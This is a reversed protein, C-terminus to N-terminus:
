FSLNKGLYFDLVKLRFIFDYKSQILESEARSKNNRINIFEIFSILGVDYKRQAYNFAEDASSKAKLSANYRNMAATADAHAQVVSKYVQKRSLEDQLLANELNLRSRQINSQVSWGNFLPISLSLGINKSQNNRVQEDFPIEGLLEAYGGENYFTGISSFLNLSPFLGSKAASLGKKASSIGYESARIEPLTKLSAAYIEEPKMMVTSQSPIDVQQIAVGFDSANDLELLQSIAINASNLSNEATVLTLEESALAAEADLLNGQAMMGTEVMKATRNRTETAANVRDQALKFSEMAFLVQLYAAAVNLSIDNSIKALNEQSQLYEYKSQALSHQLRLGGFLTVNSSLSFNTTRTENETISNTFPDVSRGFSRQHSSSGNVTPLMTTYSQDRSVRALESSIAAQKININNARAHEICEQLTWLKQGSAAGSFFLTFVIATILRSLM